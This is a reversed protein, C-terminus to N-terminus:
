EDDEDDTIPIANERTVIEKEYSGSEQLRDYAAKVDAEQSASLGAAKRCEDDAPEAVGMRVLMYAQPHSLVTGPKWRRVPTGAFVQGSEVSNANAFESDRQYASPGLECDDRIIKAKM